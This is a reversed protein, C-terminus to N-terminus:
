CKNGKDINLTNNLDLVARVIRRKQGVSVGDRLQFKQHFHLLNLHTTLELRLMTVHLQLRLIVLRMLQTSVWLTSGNRVFVNTNPLHAAQWNAKATTDTLQISSDLFSSNSLQELHTVTAGNITREIVCYM